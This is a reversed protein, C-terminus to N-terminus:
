SVFEIDYLESTIPWWLIELFIESRDIRRDINREIWLINKDNGNKSNKKKNSVRSSM